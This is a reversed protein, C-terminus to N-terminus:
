VFYAALQAMKDKPAKRGGPRGGRAGRGRGRGRGGGGVRKKLLVAHSKEVLANLEPNCYICGEASIKEGPLKTKGEKYEVKILQSECANCSEVSNVTIKAADEFLRVIVDCKNCVLKWKPISAPDLVLVGQECEVCNSVGQKNVSFNCTPHSCGSCPMAKGMDPFPPNSYCYPCFVFSKGKAGATFYLLEFEDLPCKLEQYLKINGNQQPVNYTEDCTPCFLRKPKAEVLKMYRRCKGCRSFPRGSDALSSFRVEFLQDMGEVNTTFYVFKRKFVEITHLLVSNFDAKGHAILDLQKEVASRMTPKVLDPDIKLYGHVLVIGLSTPKLRRGSEISVYNRTCINNIHVPISADTGIGHKEMLTILDSETLYGPPATQRESLKAEFIELEEEEKMQPLSEEPPMAQWKMVDTFGPETVKKGSFSFEEESIEIRVTTQEYKCNASVTGIFHRVIYDYLKWADGDLEGRSVSRCPTIPPHDGADHGKRPKCFGGSLLVKCDAGWDPNNQQQKLVDKLDFNEAYSTSETRPYSIYGQTYLREAIQMAHSPGMGLGSSAARMLEVTNLAIPKEKQKEKKTISVIKATSESKVLNLFMVAVDRDFCRGREWEIPLKANHPGALVQVQLVWYAEPKHTLIQDHREVCFGLTPTQCPGYSILSSDLDGYKGQFYRTQFRTFACGIRLDLEQRADVSKSQNEDPEGLDNLAAIIDKATISSFKARFVTNKDLKKMSRSVADLVEFCINEGEKDCDLWLVIYDCGKAEQALFHPMRLKTTAEKKETEGEFLEVPNVKEWNNYKPLFDLSMVHGCVSTMKYKVKEKTAPFQEVWEAVSCAGNSGKRSSCQNKSLITAISSALSPKEAVMIVTKM